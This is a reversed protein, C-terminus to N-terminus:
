SPSRAPHILGSPEGPSDSGAPSEYDEEDDYFGDDSIWPSEIGLWAFFLITGVFVACDVTVTAPTLVAATLRRGWHAESPLAATAIVTYGGGSEVLIDVSGAEPEHRLFWERPAPTLESHASQPVPEHALYLPSHVTEGAEGIPVETLEEWNLPVRLCFSPKEKGEVAVLILTSGDTDQGCSVPVPEVPRTDGAWEWLGQTLCSPLLLVTLSITIFRLM